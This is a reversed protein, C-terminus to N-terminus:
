SLAAQALSRGMAIPLSFKDISETSFWMPFQVGKFGLTAGVLGGTPHLLPELSISDPLAHQDGVDVALYLGMPVAFTTDGYVARLIDIPPKICPKETQNWYLTRDLVCCLGIATKAAWREFLNGNV